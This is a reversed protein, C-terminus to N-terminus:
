EIRELKKGKNDEIIKKVVKKDESCFNSLVVFCFFVGLFTDNKTPLPLLIQKERAERYVTPTWQKGKPFNCFAIKERNLDLLLM